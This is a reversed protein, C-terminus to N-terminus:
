MGTTAAGDKAVRPVTSAFWGDPNDRDSKQSLITSESNPRGASELRCQGRMAAASLTDRLTLSGPIMSKM